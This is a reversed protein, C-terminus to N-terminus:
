LLTKTLRWFAERLRECFPRKRWQKLEIRRADAVDAVFYRELDGSVNSGLVVADLEDNFLVSRHDFNSSGIITWVGDIVISKTHLIVGELEYIKVGAELL